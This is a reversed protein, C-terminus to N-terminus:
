KAKEDFNSLIEKLATMLADVDSKKSFKGFSFRLSSSAVDDKGMALMVYSPGGNEGFCASRTGCVIGKESLAVALFESDQGKIGVNVNNPSRNSILQEDPGNIVIGPIDKKMRDICYDRIAILREREAEQGDVVLAFAKAFGVILPVNETGPRLGFEQSGGLYVPELEVGERRYLLGIGKPGYIKQADLTLFDARLKGVEIPTFLAAQSADIHFKPYTLNSTKRYNDIVKGISAVPLIVGTENNVYMISVLVTNARLANEVQKATVLGNEDVDLYSVEAGKEELRKFCDLVSPHEIPTTIFHLDEIKEGVKIKTEVIGLIVINNSETGSGTFIIEGTRAGMLDACTKRADNIAEKSERGELHFSGPNGYMANWYPQMAKIVKPDVPTSAAYDMYIRSKEKKKFM